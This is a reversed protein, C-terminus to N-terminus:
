AARRPVRYLHWIGILARRNEPTAHQDFDRVARHLRKKGAYTRTLGDKGIIYICHGGLVAADEYGKAALALYLPCARVTVPCGDAAMTKTIEVTIRKPISM